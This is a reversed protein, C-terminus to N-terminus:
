PSDIRLLLTGKKVYDGLAVYINEVRGSVLPTVQQLQQQNPEVTGAVTFTSAPTQTGVTVVRVGAVASNIDISNTTSEKEEKAPENPSRKSLGFWLVLCLVAAVGIIIATVLWGRANKPPSKSGVESEIEEPAQM